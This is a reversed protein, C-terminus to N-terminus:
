ELRRCLGVLSIVYSRCWHCCHDYFQTDNAILQYLINHKSYMDTTSKTYAIYEVPGLGSGQSVNYVLFLLSTSTSGTTFIETRDTVYSRLWKL